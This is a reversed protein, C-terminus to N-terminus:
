LPTDLLCRGGPLCRIGLCVCGGPCVCGPCVCGGWPLCVVRTLCGRGSVAVEASPVCGVPICEQKVVIEQNQGLTCLENHECYFSNM